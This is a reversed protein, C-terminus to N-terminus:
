PLQALAADLAHRLDARHLDLGPDPEVLPEVQERSQAALADMSLGERRGRQRGLDLAANSVVRLL